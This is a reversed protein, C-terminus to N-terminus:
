IALSYSINRINMHLILPIIGSGASLQGICVSSSMLRIATYQVTYLATLFDLPRHTLSPPPTSPRGLAQDIAQRRCAICLFDAWVVLMRIYVGAWGLGRCIYLKYVTICDHEYTDVKTSYRHVTYIICSHLHALTCHAYVTRTVSFILTKNIQAFTTFEISILLM